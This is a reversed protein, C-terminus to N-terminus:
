RDAIERLGTVDLSFRNPGTEKILDRRKFEAITRSATETTIGLISGVDERGFLTCEALEESDALRLLLRAVREKASGTSLQTIGDDASKLAKQWRNLLELHLTPNHESLTHVVSVPLCCVETPQMAIADHEYPQELLAEMGIVDTAEALRVIRPNGGPLLQSLKILGKRITFLRAGNHGALYLIDGPQLALQNIPRHILEFDKERLGAFLVSDRLGCNRCDASGNWAEAFPVKEPMRSVRDNDNKAPHFVGM